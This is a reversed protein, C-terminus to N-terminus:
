ETKEITGILSYIGAIKEQSLGCNTRLKYLKDALIMDNM